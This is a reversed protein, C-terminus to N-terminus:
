KQNPSSFPPMQQDIWNKIQHFIIMMKWWIWCKYKNFMARRNLQVEQKLCNKAANEQGPHSNKRRSVEVGVCGRCHGLSMTCWFLDKSKWIHSRAVCLEGDVNLDNWFPGKNCKLRQIILALVPWYTSFLPIKVVLRFLFASSLLVSENIVM